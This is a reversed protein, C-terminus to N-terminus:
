VYKLGAIQHYYPNGRLDKGGFNAIVFNEWEANIRAWFERGEPTHSWTFCQNTARRYSLDNFSMGNQNAQSQINKMFKTFLRREKLWQTFINAEERTM